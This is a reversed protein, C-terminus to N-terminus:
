VDICIFFFHLVLIFVLWTCQAMKSQQLLNATNMNMGPYGSLPGMSGLMQQFPNGMVGPGGPGGPGGPVPIMEYGPSSAKTILGGPFRPPLPQQIPPVSICWLTSVHFVSIM